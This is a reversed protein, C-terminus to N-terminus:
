PLKSIIKEMSEISSAFIFYDGTISYCLAFNDDSRVGCRVTVTRGTYESKTFYPSAPTPKKGLFDFLGVFDTEMTDEWLRTKEVIESSEKIQGVIGLRNTKDKAYVVLTFEDNLKQSFWDPTRVNFLSFFDKLGPVAKKELDKIILRTLKDNEFEEELAKDLQPTTEKTTPVEIIKSFDIAVLAPPFKIEPVYVVGPELPKPTPKRIVFFWYAFTVIGALVVLIVISVIVRTWLKEASSRKEPVPRIMETAEGAFAPPAPIKEEEPEHRSPMPAQSRIQELFKQRQLEEKKQIEALREKIKASKQEEEEATKAEREVLAEESEEKFRQAESKQLEGMEKKKAAEMEERKRIIEKLRSKEEEEKRLREGQSEAEQKEKK